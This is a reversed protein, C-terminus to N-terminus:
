GCVATTLRQDLAASYALVAQPDLQDTKSDGTDVTVNVLARCRVFLVSTTSAVEQERAFAGREGVGDLEQIQPGLTPRLAEFAAALDAPADYLLLGVNGRVEGGPLTLRQQFAQAPRSLGPLADDPLGEILAGAVLEGPLDGPQYLRGQLQLEVPATPGPGGAGDPRPLTSTPGAEATAPPITPSPLQTGCGGLLLVMLLALIVIKGTM